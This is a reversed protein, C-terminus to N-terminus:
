HCISTKSANGYETSGSSAPKKEARWVELNHTLQDLMANLYGDIEVPINGVGDGKALNERLLDKVSSQSPVWQIQLLENINGGIVERVQKYPHRINAIYTELLQRSKPLFRWTFSTLIARVFLLKRAEAFAAHSTPDFEAQFIM